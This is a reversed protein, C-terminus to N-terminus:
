PDEKQTFGLAVQGALHLMVSGFLWVAATAWSWATGQFVPALVGGGLMVTSARDFAGATLKVRENWVKIRHKRTGPTPGPGDPPPPPDSM